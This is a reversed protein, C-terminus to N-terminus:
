RSALAKLEADAYSSRSPDIRKLEQYARRAEEKMGKAAYAYALNACAEGSNPALALAKQANAIAQDWHGHLAQIGAINSYAVDRSPNVRITAEFFSLAKDYERVRLYFFGVKELIAYYYPAEEYAKMYYERAEATRGQKFRIGGLGAYIEALGNRNKLFSKNWGELAKADWEEASRLDNRDYYYSALNLAILAASPSRKMTERFLTPTDRWVAAENWLMGAFAALLALLLGFGAKLGLRLRSPWVQMLEKAVLPLLLCSGLTPIYLYRDAFVNEGIGTLNLVPAITLICYGFLFLLIHQRRLMWAAAAFAALLILSLLLNLSLISTTPQFVHFASINYPVFMKATYQALLVITSLFRPLPALDVPLQHVFFAHLAAIRLVSYFAFIGAFMAYRSWRLKRHLCWDLWAAVVPFTFAMEKSFLAGMYCGLALIIATKQPNESDKLYFYLAPFYFAACLTDTVAAIWAVSEAHIPHLAFLFGAAAGIFKNGSLRFGILAVFVSCFAHLMINFLHFVHPKLGAISYALAYVLMQLPRYYNSPIPNGTFAWVDASFFRWVKSLDRIWTNNRIQLQDDYVFEYPITRVFVLIAVLAVLPLVWLPFRATGPASEVKAIRRGKKLRSKKGM